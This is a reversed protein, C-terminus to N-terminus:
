IKQIIEKWVARTSFTPLMQRVSDTAKIVKDDDVTEVKGFITSIEMTIVVFYRYLQVAAPPSINQLWRFREMSDEPEIELLFLHEYDNKKSLM